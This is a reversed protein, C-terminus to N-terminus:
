VAKKRGRGKPKPQADMLAAYEPDRARQKCHILFNTAAHYFRPHAGEYRRFSPILRNSRPSILLAQDCGGDVYHDAESVQHPSSTCVKVKDM